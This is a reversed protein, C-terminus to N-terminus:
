VEERARVAGMVAGLKELVENVINAIDDRSSVYIRSVKEGLTHLDKTDVGAEEAEDIVDEILTKVYEIFSNMSKKLATIAAHIDRAQPWVISERCDETLMHQSAWENLAECSSRLAEIISVIREYLKNMEIHLREEEESLLKELIPLELLRANEVRERLEHLRSRIALLDALAARGLRAERAESAIRDIESILANISEIISRKEEELTRLQTVLTLLEALVGIIGTAIALGLTVTPPAVATCGIRESIVISAIVALMYALPSTLGSYALVAKTVARAEVSFGSVRRKFRSSTYGMLTYVTLYSAFTAALYGLEPYLLQLIAAPPRGIPSFLATVLPEVPEVRAKVWELCVLRNEIFSAAVYLPARTFEFAIISMATRSASASIVAYLAFLALAALHGYPASLATAALLGTALAVVGRVRRASFASALLALGITLIYALLAMNSLALSYLGGRGVNSAAIINLVALIESFFIAISAFFPIAYTAYGAMGALAAAVILSTPASPTVRYVYLYLAVAAAAYIAALLRGRDM